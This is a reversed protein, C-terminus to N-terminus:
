ENYNHTDTTREKKKNSGMTHSYSLNKIYEESKPKTKPNTGTQPQKYKQAKQPCM